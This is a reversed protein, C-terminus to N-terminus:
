GPGAPCNCVNVGTFADLVALIDFIDIIGDGDPCPVLEVDLMTCTTFVGAFGDLVCLIDFIDVLGDHNVDGFISQTYMCAGAGCQGRTCVDCDNCEADDATCCGDPGFQGDCNPDCEDPISNANCDQSIVFGAILVDRDIGITGGLTDNSYWVTMWTGANDTTVEAHTDFGTDTAANNNLPAPDTWALGNDSSLAVHIDYENATTCGPADGGAWVVVWNGAGDTAMRPDEDCGADTAADSSLPEPDTWILGNNSSVAVLIDGDAGITGGLTDHSSWVAVWNGAGNTSVEPEHDDGSDTAANNNLPDPDTWTQGNDSSLAVLIDQDTGITGGLTDNSQWVAVWNGAGDTTVQPQGSPHGDDGEDTAANNNLPEPNTWSLGNNNSRAVLIDIDTGITGGLTDNSQWVAVWNGGGDTTVQPEFDDGSDTGANNNLPSPGTWNLANDTSRAVFIDYDTGTTGGLSDNSTWVAVWSGIGDTTVQPARDHGSDTAANNNLPVPDTWTLGNNTSLAVLIDWDPGITGDLSDTSDWVAVWNGSGDTTVQALEDDGSDTAANNNLPLRNTIFPPWNGEIECEDAIMNLNCDPDCEDPIENNNCDSPLMADLDIVYAEGGENSPTNTGVAVKSGSIGVHAGFQEHDYPIPSTLKRIQNWIAANAGDRELVYVAGANLGASDHEMAGIAALNGDMRLRHGFQDNPATDTAVLVNASCADMWGGPPKVFVYVAGANAGATDDTQAGVLIVDNAIAVSGGFASESEPICDTLKATQGWNNTGGANREFVFAAGSNGVGGTDHNSAGAVIVDGEVAVDGCFGDRNTGDGTITLLKVQGWNNSGGENQQFVYVKGPQFSTASSQSAPIVVTDGDISPENGFEDGMEANTRALKKVFSWTGLGDREFVYASGSSTGNDDDYVAGIVVVDGDIGPESFRDSDQGDPALLEATQMWGTGGHQFVYAAGRDFGAHDHGSAGAVVTEGSIAVRQGFAEGPTSNTDSGVLITGAQFECWDPVGNMNCDDCAPDGTCNAIDIADDIGNNNCDTARAIRPAGHFAAAWMLLVPLLGPRVFGRFMGDALKM